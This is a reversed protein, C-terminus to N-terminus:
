YRYKAIEDLYFPFYYFPLTLLQQSEDYGYRNASVKIALRNSNHERYKELSDLSGKNKKCDIPIIDGRDMILFELESSTKGKWYFLPHDRAALEEAAFNEMFVGSLANQKAPDLFTEPYIQSQLAFLGCDPLYIRFLSGDENTLPYSVHEKVQHSLLILGALSLWSLPNEYDRFRKGKELSSIKFNKNEKALELYIHDFVNKTRVITQSSIQYLSMDNLYNDYVNRLATRAKRYDHSKAFLSVAEPMGGIILYDYFEKMVLRHEEESFVTKNEYGQKVFDYIRPNVAMLWEDFTMPHMALEDIKGLPFMYNNLGDQNEAEIEPDFPIQKEESAHIRIRVMSGTAIVPIERHDQCFYKLSTLAPMCEQVEDFIILTNEDIDMQKVLSLYRIIDEAKVHNKIFIRIDKDAKFDIYIYKKFNRKAFLDKILYTKGVQRAGYVLLPKREPSKLWQLLFSYAKREM